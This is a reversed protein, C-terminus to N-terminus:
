ATPCTWTAKTKNTSKIYMEQAQICISKYIEEKSTYEVPDWGYWDRDQDFAGYWEWTQITFNEEKKVTGITNENLWTSFVNEVRNKGWAPIKTFDPLNTSEGLDSSVYVYSDSTENYLAIGKTFGPDVTTSGVTKVTPTISKGAANLPTLLHTKYFSEVESRWADTGKFRPVRMKAIDRIFSGDARFNAFWIDIWGGIWYGYGDLGNIGDVYWSTFTDTHKVTNHFNLHGSREVVNLKPSSLSKTMTQIRPEVGAVKWGSSTEIGAAFSGLDLDKPANFEDLTYTTGGFVLQAEAHDPTQAGHLEALADSYASGKFTPFQNGLAPITLVTNVDGVGLEKTEYFKGDYIEYDEPIPSSNQYTRRHQGIKLAKKWAEPTASVKTNKAAEAFANFADSKTKRTVTSGDVNTFSYFDNTEKTTKIGLGKVTNEREGANDIMEKIKAGDNAFLADVEEQKYLWGFMRFADDWESSSSGLLGCSTIAFPAVALSVLIKKM